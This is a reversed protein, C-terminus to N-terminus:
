TEVVRFYSETYDVTWVTMREDALIRFCPKDILGLEYSIILYYVRNLLEPSSWNESRQTILDGPKM